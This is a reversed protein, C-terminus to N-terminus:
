RLPAARAALLNVVGDEHEVQGEVVLLPAGRIIEGYQAYVQPRVIINMM